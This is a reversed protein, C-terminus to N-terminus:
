SARFLISSVHGGFCLFMQVKIEPAMKTFDFCMFGNQSPKWVNQGFKCLNQGSKLSKWWILVKPPPRGVGAGGGGVGSAKFKSRLVKVCSTHIGSFATKVWVCRIRKAQFIQSWLDGWEQRLNDRLNIIKCYNTISIGVCALLIPSSGFKCFSSSFNPLNVLLGYTQWVLAMVASTSYPIM